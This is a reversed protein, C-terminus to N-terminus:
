WLITLNSDRTFTELGYIIYVDTRSRDEESIQESVSDTYYRLDFVDIEEYEQALFPLLIHAFSDKVIVAKRGNGIGTEIHVYGHNGDLYYTYQDKEQLRQEAYLSSMTSGDEFTLTVPNEQNPVIRFLSDPPNWFVGSRSYMTGRFSDSVEQLSFAEPQKHLVDRCIAQYAILAGKENWHHDTRFYADGAEQLADSIDIFNQDALASGIANLLEKEDIGCAGGPLYQQEGFDADPVLLINLKLGTEEAFEQLCVINTQTTKEDATLFQRILRDDRALWVGNNEIAGLAMRVAAKERIWLDRLLFHDSFWQEFGTDFDGFLINQVSVAPFPTLVRNENESFEKKPAALNLLSLAFLFLCFVGTVANRILKEQPKTKEM